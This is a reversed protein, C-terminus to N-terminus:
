STNCHMIVMGVKGRLPKAPSYHNQGNFVAELEWRDSRIVSSSTYNLVLASKMELTWGDLWGDICVLGM